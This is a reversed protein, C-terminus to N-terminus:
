ILSLTPILSLPNTKKNWLEDAFTQYILGSANEKTLFNGYKSKRVTDEEQKAKSLNEQDYFSSIAVAAHQNLRNAWGTELEEVNTKEHNLNGEILIKAAKEDKIYGKTFGPVMNQWFSDEVHSLDFEFASVCRNNKLLIVHIPQNFLLDLEPTDVRIFARFTIIKKSSAKWWVTLTYLPWLYNDWYWIFPQYNISIFDLNTEAILTLRDQTSVVFENQLQRSEKGEQYKRHAEFSDIQSPPINKLFRKQYEAFDVDKM